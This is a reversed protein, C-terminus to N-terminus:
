NSPSIAQEIFDRYYQVHTFLTYGDSTGCTPDNLRGGQSDIGAFYATNNEIIFFGTGSDGKCTSNGPSYKNLTCIRSGNSSVYSSDFKKCGEVDGVKLKVAKLEDALTNPDNDKKQAGWGLAIGVKEAPIQGVYIPAAKVYDNFTLTPITIIAIDNALPKSGDGSYKPHSQINTAKVHQQSERKDNGYGIITKSPQYLKGSPQFVCHSATVIHNKTIITGGCVYEEGKGTTFSLHVAFPAARDPLDYGGIIRKDLEASNPIALTHVVALCLLGSALSLMISSLNVWM